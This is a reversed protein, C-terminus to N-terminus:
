HASSSLSHHTGYFVHKYYYYYLLIHLLLLFYIQRILGTNQKCSPLILHSRDIKGRKEKYPQTPPNMIEYSENLLIAGVKRERLVCGSIVVVIIIERDDSAGVENSYTRLVAIM